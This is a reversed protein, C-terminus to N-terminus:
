FGVHCHGPNACDQRVETDQGPAQNPQCPPFAGATARLRGAQEATPLALGDPTAERCGEACPAEPERKGGPVCFQWM